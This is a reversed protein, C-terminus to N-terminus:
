LKENGLDYQLLALGLNRHQIPLEKTNPTTYNEIFQFGYSTYYEVIKPNDAWTDMRIFSLEKEKATKSAWSLVKAFQKQGRYKPNVVMRHIYLADGKELERWIIKDSYCISFVCLTEGDQVVKYQLQNEIDNTLANKDYGKWVTYNNGRQYEIAREFLYYIFELDSKTTHILKYSM